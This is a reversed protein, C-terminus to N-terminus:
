GRNTVAGPSLLGLLVAQQVLGAVSEAGMKRMVRGRHVKITKEAAGLESAIEKNLKGRVVLGFVEKERQTLAEHRTRLADVQRGERMMERSRELAARVVALFQDPVFPKLLFDVAGAKVARVTTPVDAHASLFIIPFTVGRAALEEQLEIGDMGPMRLDLVACAPRALAGQGALFADPGDWAVAEIGEARLLRVLSRLVSPDDDVLHVTGSPASEMSV